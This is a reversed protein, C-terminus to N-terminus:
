SELVDLLLPRKPPAEDDVTYAARVETVCTAASVVDRAHVEALPEGAEVRDGRKALCV